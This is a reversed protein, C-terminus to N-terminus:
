SEKSKLVPLHCRKGRVQINQPLRTHLGALGWWYQRALSVGVAHEGDPHSSKKEGKLERALDGHAKAKTYAIKDSYVLKCALDSSM